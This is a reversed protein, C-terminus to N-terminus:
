LSSLLKEVEVITARYLKRNPKTMHQSESHIETLLTKAKDEKNHKLYFKALDLREEYNSYRKDIQELQTEAKDIEGVRELSVGYLFQEYSGNFESKSKISEALGIVETFEDKQFYSYILKKITYYDNQSYDNKAKLYNTIATNYDGIDFYADALDLRNQFTDSFSVKSELDKIKKTPNIINVVDDQLKDVDKKNFVQTILYILSGIVPLFIILFVWYYDTRNKFWHYICYAQLGIILYYYM